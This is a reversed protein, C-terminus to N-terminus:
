VHHIDNEVATNEKLNKFLIIVIHACTLTINVTVASPMIANAIFIIASRKVFAAHQFLFIIGDIITVFSKAAQVSKITAHVPM